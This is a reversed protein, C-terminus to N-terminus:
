ENALLLDRRCSIKDGKWLLSRIIVKGVPTGAIKFCTVATFLLHQIKHGFFFFFSINLSPM